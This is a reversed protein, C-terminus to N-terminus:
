MMGHLLAQGAQEDLGALPLVCVTATQGVLKGV